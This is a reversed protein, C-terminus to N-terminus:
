TVYFLFWALVCRQKLTWRVNYPHEQRKSPRITKVNQAMMKIITLLILRDYHMTGENENCDSLFMVCGVFDLRTFM